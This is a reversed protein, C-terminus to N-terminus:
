GATKAPAPGASSGGGKRNLWEPLFELVTQAENPEPEPPVLNLLRQAGEPRTYQLERLFSLMQALRSEEMRREQARSAELRKVLWVTFITISSYPGLILVAFPTLDTLLEPFYAVLLLFSTSLGLLIMVFGIGICLKLRRFAREKSERDKQEEFYERYTPQEARRDTEQSSVTPAAPTQSSQPSVPM